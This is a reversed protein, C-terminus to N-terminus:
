SNLIKTPKYFPPTFTSEKNKTMTIAPNISLVRDIYSPDIIHDEFSPRLLQQHQETLDSRQKLKNIETQIESKFKNYRENVNKVLQRIALEPKETIDTTKIASTADPAVTADPAIDTNTIDTIDTM